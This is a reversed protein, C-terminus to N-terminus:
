IKSEDTTFKTGTKFLAILLNTGAVGWFCLKPDFLGTAQMSIFFVNIAPLAGYLLYDAVRKWKPDSPKNFNELKLM